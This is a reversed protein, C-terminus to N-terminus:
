QTINFDLTTRKGSKNELTAQKATIAVIDFTSDNIKISDGVRQDDFSKDSPAHLFSASYGVVLEYPEDASFKVQEVRETDEDTINFYFASPSTEPGDIRTLVYPVNKVEKGVEFTRKVPKRKGASDAGEETIEIVYRTSSGYETTRVFQLRRYLPTIQKISVSKIGLESARALSGSVEQWRVPNLLEHEGVIGVSIPQSIKELEEAYPSLDVDVYEQPSRRPSQVADEAAQKGQSIQMTVFAIGGISLALVLALILKEFHNKLFDM